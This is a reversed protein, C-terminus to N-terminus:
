KQIGHSYRHVVMLLLLRKAGVKILIYHEEFNSQDTHLLRIENYQWQEM